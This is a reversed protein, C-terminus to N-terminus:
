QTNEEVTYNEYTGLPFESDTTSFNGGSEYARHAPGNMRTALFRWGYDSTEETRIYERAWATNVYHTRYLEGDYTLGRFYVREPIWTEDVTDSNEYEEVTYSYANLLSWDVGLFQTGNLDTRMRYTVVAYDGSANAEILPSIDANPSSSNYTDANTMVSNANIALDSAFEYYREKKGWTSMPGVFNEPRKEVSLMYEFTTNPTASTAEITYRGTKNLTLVDFKAYGDEGNNAIDVISGNPSRVRIVPEGEGDHHQMGILVQTGATATFQIPEYVTQDNRPDSGDLEGKKLTLNESLSISRLDTGSTPTLHRETSQEETPTEGGPVGSLGSSCGATIMLVVLLISLIARRWGLMQKLVGTM